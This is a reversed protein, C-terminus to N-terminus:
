NPRSARPHPYPVGPQHRPAPHHSRRPLAWRHPNPQDPIQQFASSTTISINVTFLCQPSTQFVCPIPSECHKLISSLEQISLEGITGSQAGSDFQKLKHRTDRFRNAAAQLTSTARAHARSAPINIHVPPKFCPCGFYLRVVRQTGVRSM